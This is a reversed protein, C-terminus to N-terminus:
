VNKSIIEHGYSNDISCLWVGNIDKNFVYTAKRTIEPMNPASIVTNALVLATNGSELVEIGRQSVQLGNKFYVAIAEFAKRIADKGVANRGPEIVLIADDTYIDILTDFNEEVIARDAKKIQKIVEHQEM